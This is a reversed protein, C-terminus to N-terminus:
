TFATSRLVRAVQPAHTVAVAVVLLWLHPGAVSVLLLAFVIAPFALIVDVARMILGDYWGKFYAASIGAIAGVAVGLLTAATAIVLLLWGGDLVRSLVDRGLVDGGLWAESSPPAFPGTVFATASHPALFPGIVTLLVVGLAVSLGIAGRRTRTAARLVVLWQHRHIRPPGVRDTAADTNGTAAM